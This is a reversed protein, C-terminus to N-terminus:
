VISFLVIERGLLGNNFKKFSLSILYNMLIFRNCIKKYDRNTVLITNKNKGENKQTINQLIETEKFSAKSRRM